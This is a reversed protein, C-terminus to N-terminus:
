KCAFEKGSFWWPVEGQGLDKQCLKFPEKAMLTGWIKIVLITKKWRLGFSGAETRDNAAKQRAGPNDTSAVLRLAEEEPSSWM